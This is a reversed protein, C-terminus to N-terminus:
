NCIPTQDFYKTLFLINFMGQSWFLLSVFFLCTENLSSIHDWFLICFLLIGYCFLQYNLVRKPYTKWAIDTNQFTNRDSTMRLNNQHCYPWDSVCSAEQESDKPSSEQFEQLQEFSHGLVGGHYECRKDPNYWIPFPPQMPNSPTSAILRSGLLYQYVFELPLPIDVKSLSM